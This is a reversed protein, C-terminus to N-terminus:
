WGQGMQCSGSMRHYACSCDGTPRDQCLLSLTDSESRCRLTCALFKPWAFQYLISSCFCSQAFFLRTQLGPCTYQPTVKSESIHCCPHPPCLSPLLCVQMSLQIQLLTAPELCVSQPM